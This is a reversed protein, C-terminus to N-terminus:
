IHSVGYRIIYKQLIIELPEVLLFYIVVLLFYIISLVVLLFYIVCVLAESQQKIKTDSFRGFSKM